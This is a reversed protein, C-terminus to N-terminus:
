CCARRSRQPVPFTRPAVFTLTEYLCPPAQRRKHALWYFSHSAAFWWAGEHGSITPALSRVLDEYIRGSEAMAEFESREAESWQERNADDRTADDGDDSSLAINLPNGSAVAHAIFATRFTMDRVGLAKLGTVGEGAGLGRANAARSASVPATGAKYLQSIDPIVVLAGTFWVRDGAKAKDVAGHRLIVDVSRPM